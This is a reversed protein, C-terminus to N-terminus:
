EVRLSRIPDIRAARLAPTLSAFFSAMLVVAAIMLYTLSDSVAIEFLYSTLMRTTGLAVPVGIAIGALTFLLSKKFVLIIIDAGRAGLAIRIGMERTRYAVIRSIVGYL